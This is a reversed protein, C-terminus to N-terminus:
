NAQIPPRELSILASHIQHALAADQPMLNKVQNALTELDEKRGAQKYIDALGVYAQTQTPCLEAVRLYANVSEPWEKKNGAAHALEMWKQCASAGLDAQVKRLIEARKAWGKSECYRLMANLHHPNKPKAALAREYLSTALLTDMEVSHAQDSTKAEQASSLLSVMARDLPHILTHLALAAQFSAADGYVAIAELQILAIKQKLTEPWQDNWIGSAKRWESPFARFYDALLAGQLMGNASVISAFLREATTQGTEVSRLTRAYVSWPSPAREGLFELRTLGAGVHLGFSPHFDQNRLGQLALMVVLSEAAGATEFAELAPGIPTTAPIAQKSPSQSKATMPITSEILLNRDTNRPGEGLVLRSSTLPILSYRLLDEAQGHELPVVLDQLKPQSLLAQIKSLSLKRAGKVGVFYFGDPRGLTRYVAMQPFVAAFANTISQFAADNIGTPMFWQGFVGNDELSEHVLRFMEETFLDAAGSVWPHAPQSAILSWKRPATSYRNRLLFNRADDVHLHVGTDDLPSQGPPYIFKCIAPMSPELEVVDVEPIGAKRLVSVSIGAGLGVVLANPAEPYHIAPFLGVLISELNFHPPDLDRGSQTLGNSSIALNRNIQSVAVTSGVGDKYLKIQSSDVFATSLSKFLESLNISRPTAASLVSKANITPWFGATFILVALIPLVLRWRENPTEETILVAFLIAVLQVLVYVWVMGEIGLADLLYLASVLSGLVSTTTNLAYATSIERASHSHQKLLSLAAPFLFGLGLTIPLLFAIAILFNAHLGLLTRYQSTVARLLFNEVALALPSMALYVTMSLCVWVTVKLISRHTRLRSQFHGWLLGGLGIGALFAGLTAGIGYLSGEMAITLVRSWAIEYGLTTFGSAGVLIFAAWKWRNDGPGDVPAPEDTESAQITQTPRIALSGLAAVGNLAVAVFYSGMLGLNPLLWHTALYIGLFAGLTNVGYLWGLDSSFKRSSQRLYEVLASFTAGMAMTPFALLLAAIGLRWFFGVASSGNANVLAYSKDVHFLPIFLLASYLGIGFELWGYFRLPNKWRRVWRGGAFSGVALGLFFVSLVAAFALSTSGFSFSLIRSWLLEFILSAAGSALLCPVLWPNM